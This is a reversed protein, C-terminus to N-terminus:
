FGKKALFEDFEAGLMIAVPLGIVISVAIFPSSHVVDLYKVAFTLSLTVGFTVVIVLYM